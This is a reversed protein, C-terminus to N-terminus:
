LTPELLTLATQLLSSAHAYDMRMPGLLGIVALPTTAVVSGCAAGFPCQQGLLIRPASHPELRLATLVDDLHDLIETLGVVRQWDKFESQAFLQSLGTYYTDGSTTFGVFVALSSRDALAKAMLKYGQLRDSTSARAQQLVDADRKAVPKVRIFQEVYLRFGQETPIRGGSTHPQTLLGLEDLASFWNRITAPSVQLGYVEVLRQSGVPEGREVYDEVVLKLLELLRENM